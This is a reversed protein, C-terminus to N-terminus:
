HQCSMVSYTGGKTSRMRRLLWPTMSWQSNKGSLADVMQFVPWIAKTHTYWRLCTELTFQCKSNTCRHLNVMCKLWLNPHYNLLIERQLDILPSKWCRRRIQRSSSTQTSKCCRKELKLFAWGHKISSVQLRNGRRLKANLNLHKVFHFWQKWLNLTNQVDMIPRTKLSAQLKGSKNPSQFVRRQISHNLKSVKKQFRNLMNPLAWSKLSNKSM